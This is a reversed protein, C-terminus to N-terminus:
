DKQRHGRDELEDIGAVRWAQSLQELDVGTGRGRSVFVAERREHAGGVGSALDEVRDAGGVRREIREIPDHGALASVKGSGVSPRGVPEGAEM